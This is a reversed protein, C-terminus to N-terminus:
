ELNRRIAVYKSSAAKRKAAPAKIRGGRLSDASSTEVTKKTIKHCARGKKDKLEFSAPGIICPLTIDLGPFQVKWPAFDLKDLPTSEIYAEMESIGAISIGLNASVAEALGVDCLTSPAPFPQDLYGYFLYNTSQLAHSRVRHLYRKEQRSAKGLTDIYKLASRTFARILPTESDTVQWATIKAWLGVFWDKDDLTSSDLKKVSRAVDCVHCPTQTPNYFLRGLFTTPMSTPQSIIKLKAGLAAAVRELDLGPCIPTLGDDGGYIGLGDWATQPCLGAERLGIYGILANSVSNGFSTQGSGSLRGWNLVFKIGFKTSGKVNTMGDFLRDIEDAYASPFAKLCVLKEFTSLFEGMTGDWRSFDTNAWNKCSKALAMVREGIEYPTAGFAYWRTTKCLQMLPYIYACTRITCDVPLTCINRPDAVKGYAEAKQFSKVYFKGAADVANFLSYWDRSNRNVQAPKDQYARVVDLDEPYLTTGDPVFFRIFEDRYLEYVQPVEDNVNRPENVRGHICELDNALCATPVAGGPLVPAITNHMTPKGHEAAPIEENIITYDRPGVVPSSTSATRVNPDSSGFGDGPYDEYEPASVRKKNNPVDRLKGKARPAPMQIAPCWDVEVDQFKFGTQLLEALMGSATSLEIENNPNHPSLKAFQQASGGTASSPNLRARVASVMEETVVVSRYSGVYGISYWVHRAPAPPADLYANETVVEAHWKRIAMANPGHHLVDGRIRLPASNCGWFGFTWGVPVLLVLSRDPDVTARRELSYTYAGFFSNITVIDASWNYLHHTYTAGGNVVLRTRGDMLTTYSGDLTSGCVRKPDFTYLVVTRPFGWPACIWFLLTYYDVDVLTYIYPDASGWIWGIPDAFLGRTWRMVIEAYNDTTGAVVGVDKPGYHYRNGMVQREVNRKSRSIDYRPRDLSACFQDMFNEAARRAAAADGHTHHDYKPVAPLNTANFAQRIPDAAFPRGVSIPRRSTAVRRAFDLSVRVCQWVVFGAAVPAAIYRTALLAGRSLTLWGSAVPLYGYRFGALGGILSNCGTLVLQRSSWEALHAAEIILHCLSKLLAILLTRWKAPLFQCLSKLLAISPRKLNDAIKACFDYVDGCLRPLNNVLPDHARSIDEFGRLLPEVHQDMTPAIL